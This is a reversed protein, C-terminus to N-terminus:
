QIVQYYVYSVVTAVAMEEKVVTGFLLRFKFAFHM